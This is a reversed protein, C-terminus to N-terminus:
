MRRDKEKAIFVGRHALIEARTATKCFLYPFCRVLLIPVPNPAIKSLVQPSPSKWFIPTSIRGIKSAPILAPTAFGGRSPRCRVAVGVVDFKKLIEYM